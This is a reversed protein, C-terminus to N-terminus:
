VVRQEVLHLKNKKKKKPFLKNIGIMAYIVARRRKAGKARIKGTKIMKYIAYGYVGLVLALLLLEFYIMKM